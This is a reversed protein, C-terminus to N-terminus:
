RHTNRFAQPLVGSFRGSPTVTTCALAICRLMGRSRRIGLSARLDEFDKVCRHALVVEERTESCALHQYTQIGVGQMNSAHSFVPDPAFTM